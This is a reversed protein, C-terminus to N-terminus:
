EVTIVGTMEIPHFDCRFDIAGPEAPATWVLTGTDGANLADPDSVADDDTGFEGDPGAIRMNHTAAGDNTISFTVQQGAAVTFSSPMFFNDMQAVDFTAPAGDGDPPPAGNGDMDDGDMCAAALLALAIALAAAVAVPRFRISIASPM